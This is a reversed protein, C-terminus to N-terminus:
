NQNHINRSRASVRNLGSGCYKRGLKRDKKRKIRSVGVYGVRECGRKAATM